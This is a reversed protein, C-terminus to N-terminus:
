WVQSSIDVDELDGVTLEYTAMAGARILDMHGRAKAKSLYRGRETVRWAANENHANLVPDNPHVIRHEQVLEYLHKDCPILREPSQPFEVVRFGQDELLQAPLEFFRPDYVIAKVKWRDAIVGAITGFVDLHDIRGNEPAWSRPYWGVRGDSLLGAVVVACSDGHLAMDVGIVVEGGDPPIADAAVNEGWLGPTEILWNNAGLAVFRNAYYRDFEHRPIKHGELELARHEVSWVVDAARMMKLGARLQQPDNLDFRAPIERWDFLYRSLPNSREQLGRAYLRWLLPDTDKAPVQGRGFAATSMGCVRGAPISKTLAASVVTYVRAKRGIWEHLEDALFLTTNHTVHMERGALYTRSPHDVYICKTPVTSVPVVSVIAETTRRENSGVRLRSTKRPLTAVPIDTWFEIRDRMIRTCKIGLSRILEHVDALLDPKTLCIGVKGRREVWGDSDILGQLLALRDATSARLMAPPIRKDDLIGLKRLATKLSKKRDWNSHISYDYQSLHHVVYGEDAFRQLIEPDATSIRAAGRAGDGLWYGVVWPHAPWDESQGTIGAHLPVKWKPRTGRTLTEAAISQTNMAREMGPNATPSVIWQHEDDAVLSSGDRFTVRFCDRHHIESVALVTTSSGDRAILRDGVAVDAMTTWGTPTPLPTDLALGKGGEATGAEAAMREIRGPRGDRYLIEKDFVDFLGCLPAAHVPASNLGGCMIQCQGFLEGAQHYSAAAATIIPTRRRFEDPGAFELAAIGGFFETKVGGREAGILSEEYWWRSPDGPDLEYWRWLYETHWPLPRYPDGYRDGEGHILMKSMWKVAKGGLSKRLPM